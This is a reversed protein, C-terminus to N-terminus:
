LHSLRMVKKEKKKQRCWIKLWKKGDSKKRM